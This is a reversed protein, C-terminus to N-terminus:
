GPTEWQHRYKRTEVEFVGLSRIEGRTSKPGHLRALKLVVRRLPGQNARRKHYSDVFVTFFDSLRQELQDRSDEPYQCFESGEPTAGYVFKLFFRMLSWRAGASYFGLEVVEGADLQGEFVFAYRPTDPTVRHAFMPANTYPWAEFPVAVAILNPIVVASMFAMVVWKRRQRWM